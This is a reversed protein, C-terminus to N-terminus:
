DLRLSMLVADEQPDAYYRPRRGTEEFGLSLYLALAPVNSARVELIVATVQASRLETALAALLRQALGRRQVEAAVAITELEAEPPLVVAVAFGQVAGTEPDEAVLSIRRAASQPDLATVYAAPPWHPAQKLSEAIEIVRDLNAPTMRRIRVAAGPSNM